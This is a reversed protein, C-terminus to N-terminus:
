LHLEEQTIMIVSGQDRVASCMMSICVIPRNKVSAGSSVLPFTGQSNKIL